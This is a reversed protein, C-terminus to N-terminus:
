QPLANNFIRVHGFFPLGHSVFKHCKKQWHTSGGGKLEFFPSPNKFHNEDMKVSKEQTLNKEIHPTVNKNHTLM